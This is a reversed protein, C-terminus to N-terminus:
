HTGAIQFLTAAFLGKQCHLLVLVEGKIEDWRASLPGAGDVQRGRPHTIELERGKQLRQLVKEPHAIPCVIVKRKRNSAASRSETEPLSGSNLGVPTENSKLAVRLRWEISGEWAAKGKRGRSLGGGM